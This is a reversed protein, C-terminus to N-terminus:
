FSCKNGVVMCCRGLSCGGSAAYVSSCVFVLLYIFHVCYLIPRM